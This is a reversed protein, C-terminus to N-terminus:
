LLFNTRSQIIGSEQHGENLVQRSANRLDVQEINYAWNILRLHCHQRDFPYLTTDLQCSIDLPGGISWDVWGTHRVRVRFYEYTSDQYFGTASCRSM